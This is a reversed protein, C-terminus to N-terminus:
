EVRRWYKCAELDAIFNEITDVRVAAGNWIKIRYAFGEMYEELGEESGFRSGDRLAEVIQQPSAGEIAEGDETIFKM